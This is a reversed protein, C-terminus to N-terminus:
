GELLEEVIDSIIETDIKDKEKMWGVFLANQCINNVIRPIGKSLNFIENLADSTFIENQAGAIKCRHKIYKITEEKNMGGLNYKINIRQKVQPM